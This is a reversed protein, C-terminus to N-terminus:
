FIDVQVSKTAYSSILNFIYLRGNLDGTFWHMSDVRTENWRSMLTLVQEFSWRSRSIMCRMTLTCSRSGVKIINLELISWVQFIISSHMKSLYVERLMSTTYVISYQSWVYWQPNILPAHVQRCWSNPTATDECPRTLFNDASDWIRQFLIWYMRQFKSTLM